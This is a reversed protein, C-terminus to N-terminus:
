VVTEDFPVYGAAQDRFITDQLKAITEVAKQNGLRILDNLIGVSDISWEADPMEFDIRTYQDGLVYRMQWHTGESQAESMVKLLRPAWWKLGTDETGPNAFSPRKGTGISLMHIDHQSFPRDIGLRHCDQAIKVAEMYAVIAPNNAWLAGDSYASGPSLSVHPFYSPAATTALVVDRVLYHRDRVFGPRHPTKFVVVKGASLDVAPIVLRCKADGLKRAGFKRQLGLRFPLPDYKSHLLWEADVGPAFRALLTDMFQRKWRPLKPTRRNFVAPAGERYFDLVDAPSLELALGVAILGGTSTGAILDFYRILPYGLEQQLRALYAATFAGRIGGGDLSLIKFM